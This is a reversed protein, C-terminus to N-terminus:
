KQFVLFFKALVTSFKIVLELYFRAILYTLSVSDNVRPLALSIVLILMIDSSESGTLWSSLCYM